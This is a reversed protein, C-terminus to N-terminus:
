VGLDMLRIIIGIDKMFQVMQSGLINKLTVFNNVHM